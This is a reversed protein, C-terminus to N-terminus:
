KVPSVSTTPPAINKISNSGIALVFGLTWVIIVVAASKKKSINGIVAIGIAILVMQWLGFVNLKTILIDVITMNAAAEAIAALDLPKNAIIDYIAKIIGGILVPFYSILYVGVMQRYTATSKFIKAILFYVLSMFYVAIITAIITMIVASIPSTFAGALKQATAATAPDAGKISESVAGGLKDKSAIALILATIASCVVVILLRIGYSENDKYYEFLKEPNVFFNKVKEGLTLKLVPVNDASNNNEM